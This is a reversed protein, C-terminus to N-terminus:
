RPPKVVANCNDCRLGYLRYWNFATSGCACKWILASADRERERERRKVWLNIIKADERLM